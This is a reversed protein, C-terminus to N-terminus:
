WAQVVYYEITWCHAFYCQKTQFRLLGNDNSFQLQVQLLMDIDQQLKLLIDIFPSFTRWSFNLWTVFKSMIILKSTEKVYYTPIGEYYSPSIQNASM